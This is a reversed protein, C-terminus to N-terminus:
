NMASLDMFIGWMGEVKRQFNPHNNSDMSPLPSPRNVIRNM